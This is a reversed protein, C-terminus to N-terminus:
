SLKNGSLRQRERSKLYRCAWYISCIQFFLILCVVVATRVDQFLDFGFGRRSLRVLGITAIALSRVIWEAFGTVCVYDGMSHKCVPIGIRLGIIGSVIVPSLMINGVRNFAFDYTAHIVLAVMIGIVCCLVTGVAVIAHEHRTRSVDKPASKFIADWKERDQENFGCAIRSEGDFNPYAVILTPVVVTGQLSQDHFSFGDFCRCDAM